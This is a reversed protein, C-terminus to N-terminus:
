DGLGKHEGGMVLILPPTYRAERFDLSAESDAGVICFGAEAQRELFQAVNGIHSVPVFSDAGAASKSVTATLGCSRREPLLIGHFGAADATRILSGLNHPDQIEDLLLIQPEQNQNRASELIDEFAAYAHTAIAVVVGQHLGGQAMRDVVARPVVTYPIHDERLRRRIERIIEPDGIGEQIYAKEVPRGARLAELVPHRGFVLNERM